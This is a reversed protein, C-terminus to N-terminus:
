ETGFAARVEVQVAPQATVVRDRTRVIRVGGACLRFVVSRAQQVESLPEEISAAGRSPPRRRPLETPLAASQFDAHRHNSYAGLGWTSETRPFRHECGRRTPGM